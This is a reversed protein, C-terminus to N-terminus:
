AALPGADRNRRWVSFNLAGAVTVWLLYPAIMLGAVSQVSWFLALMGAVALWLGALVGMALGMRRLGFFVPSWLANLTIQAAFVALAPATLSHGSLAVRYAAWVILIYLATWVVPFMWDPPTWGPKDLGRYWDGPQFLAGTAAAAMCAMGIGILVILEM